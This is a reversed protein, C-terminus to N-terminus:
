NNPDIAGVVRLEQKNLAYKVIEAGIPGVGVQVVSTPKLGDRGEADKKADEDLKVEIEM